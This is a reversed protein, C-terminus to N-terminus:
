EKLQLTEMQLQSKTARLEVDEPNGFKEAYGFQTLLVDVDGVRLKIDHLEDDGFIVCDNM